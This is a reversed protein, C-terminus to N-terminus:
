IFQQIESSKMFEKQACQHINDLLQRLQVQDESEPDKCNLDRTYAVLKRPLLWDKQKLGLEEARYMGLIKGAKCFNPRTCDENIIVKPVFLDAKLTDKLDKTSQIIEELIVHQLKSEDSKSLYPVATVAIANLLFPLFIKM